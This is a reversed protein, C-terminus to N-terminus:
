WSWRNRSWKPYGQEDRLQVVKEGTKVNRAILADANQHRIKSGTVEVKEGESIKLKQEAMFSTPRLHVDLPGNETKLIM